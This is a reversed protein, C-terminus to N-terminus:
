LVFQHLLWLVMEYLSLYEIPQELGSLGTTYVQKKQSAVGIKPHTELLTACLNSNTNFDYAFLKIGRIRAGNQLYIPAHFIGNSSGPYITLQSGNHLVPRQQPV